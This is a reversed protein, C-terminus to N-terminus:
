KVWISLGKGKILECKVCLFCDFRIIDYLPMFAFSKGSTRTHYKRDFTGRPVNHATYLKSSSGFTRRLSRKPSRKEVHFM